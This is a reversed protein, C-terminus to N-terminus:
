DFLTNEVCAPSKMFGTTFIPLGQNYSYLDNLRTLLDSKNSPRSIDTNNMTIIIENSFYEINTKKVIKFGNKFKYGIKRDTEYYHV